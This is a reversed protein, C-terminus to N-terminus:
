RNYPYREDDGYFAQDWLSLFTVAAYDSLEESRFCLRSGIRAITSSPAYTSSACALGDRAGDGANGGFLLGKIWFWPRWKNQSRDHWDPVWDPGNLATAITVLKRRAIEDPRLVKAMEQEDMPEIGLQACAEEYSKPLKEREEKTM